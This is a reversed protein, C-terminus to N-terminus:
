PSIKTWKKWKQLVDFLVIFSSRSIRQEGDDDMEIDSDDSNDLAALGLATKVRKVFLPDIEADPRLEEDEVVSLQDNTDSGSEDEDTSMQDDANGAAEAKEENADADDGKEM